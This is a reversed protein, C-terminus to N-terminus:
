MQALKLNKYIKKFKNMRFVKIKKFKIIKIMLHFPKNNFVTMMRMEKIFQSGNKKIKMLKELLMM